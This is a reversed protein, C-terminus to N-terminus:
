DVKHSNAHTTLYRSTEQTHTAAWNGAGNISSLDEEYQIRPEETM